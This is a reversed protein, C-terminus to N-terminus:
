ALGFLRFVRRGIGSARLENEGGRKIYSLLSVMAVDTFIAALWCLADRDVPGFGRVALGGGRPVGGFQALGACGLAAIV